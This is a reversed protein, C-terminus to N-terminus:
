IFIETDRKVLFLLATVNLIAM